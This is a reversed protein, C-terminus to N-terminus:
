IEQRIGDFIGRYFAPSQDPFADRIKQDIDLAVLAAAQYGKAHDSAALAEQQEQATQVGFMANLDFAM